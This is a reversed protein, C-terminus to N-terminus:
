LIAETIINTTHIMECSIRHVQMDRPVDGGPRCLKRRLSPSQAHAQDREHESEDAEDGRNKHGRVSGWWRGSVKRMRSFSM